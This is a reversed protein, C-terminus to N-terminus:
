EKSKSRISSPDIANIWTRWEGIAALLHSEKVYGKEAHLKNELSRWKSVGREVYVRFPLVEEIADENYEVCQYAVIERQITSTPAALAQQTFQQNGPVNM